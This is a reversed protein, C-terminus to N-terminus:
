YCEEIDKHKKIREAWEGTEILNHRIFFDGAFAYGEWEDETIKNANLAKEANM